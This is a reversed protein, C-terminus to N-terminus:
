YQSTGPRTYRSCFNHYLWDGRFYAGAAVLCADTQVDTTPCQRLFNGKDNFYYLFSHWWRVDEHFEVSLRVKASPYQSLNLIDLIRRLFTRGGYVVRCAWNLKSALQQLQKENAGCRSLFRTVVHHLETLKAPSPPPPLAMECHATDLEVGLCVLKQTPGIIKHWSIQSGLHMLLQLLTTFARHCEKKTEAIILFDDLYVIITKFGRGEMMRLVSQTLRHFIAASSKAGFLLRFDFFYTPRNHGSFHWQLGTAVYNSKHIPVSRYAHQLDIKAM